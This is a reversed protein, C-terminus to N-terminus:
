DDLDQKNSRVKQLYYKYLEVLRELKEFSNEKFKYFSRDFNVGSVCILINTILSLCYFDDEEVEDQSKKIVVDKKKRKKEGADKKMFFSFLVPLGGLEIFRNCMPVSNSMAFDLTKVVFSRLNGQGKQKYLIMMLELGKHQLFAHKAGEQLLLENATLFREAAQELDEENDVIQGRYKALEYLASGIDEEPGGALREGSGLRLVLNDDDGDDEPAAPAQSRIQRLLDELQSSSLSKVRLKSLAPNKLSNKAFTDEDSSQPHM